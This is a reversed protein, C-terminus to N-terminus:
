AAREPGTNVCERLTEIRKLWEVLQNWSETILSAVSRSEAAQM